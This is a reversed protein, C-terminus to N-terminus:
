STPSKLLECLRDQRPALGPLGNWPRLREVFAKSWQGTVLGFSDIRDLGLKLPAQRNDDAVRHQTRTIDMIVLPYLNIYADVGIDRADEESILDPVRGLSMSEKTSNM